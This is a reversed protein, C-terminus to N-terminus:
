TSTMETLKRASPWQTGLCLANGTHGLMWLANGVNIAHWSGALKMSFKVNVCNDEETGSKKLM